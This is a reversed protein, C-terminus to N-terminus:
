EYVGHERFCEVRTEEGEGHREIRIGLEFLSDCRFPRSPTATVELHHEIFCIAVYRYNM